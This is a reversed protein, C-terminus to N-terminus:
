PGTTEVLPPAVFCSCPSTTGVAWTSPGSRTLGYVAGETSETTGTTWTNGDWHLFLPRSVTGDDTLQYGAAWVGGGPAPAVTQLWSTTAPLRPLVNWRTGDWHVTLPHGENTGVAWVDDPSVATVGELETNGPPLSIPSETWAQGNWHLILAINAQDGTYWGVAWADTTSIAAVSQLSNGTRGPSPTPVRKWSTGDWEEILTLPGPNDWNSYLGVAWAQGTPAIAVDYLRDAGLPETGPPPAPTVAGWATGNWHRIIPGQGSSDGVAWVNDPATAAVGDLEGTGTPTPPVPVETWSTGDWHEALPVGTEQPPQRVGVSWADTGNIAAVDRLTAEAASHPVKRWDPEVAPASLATTGVVAFAAGPRVALTGGQPEVPAAGALGATSSLALGLVAAIPRIKM